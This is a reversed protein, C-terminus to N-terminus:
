ALYPVGPKLKRRVREVDAVRHQSRYLVLAQHWAAVAEADQGLAAHADGVNAHIDAETHVGGIERFGLLASRYYDLADEYRSTHHAIYGLTDLVAAEANRDRLRRALSLARDCTRLARDHEGLRAQYWGVVSLARTVQVQDGLSLQIDLARQSHGLAQQDDGLMEWAASINKHTDAQMRLDGAQEALTLNLRLQDLAEGPLGARSLARGLSVRVLMMTADDGLRKASTLAARWCSLGDDALGRREHFTNTLSALQWVAAHWHEAIALRHAALLCAHETDFWRLAGAMDTIEEPVCPAPPPDLRIPDKTPSLLRAATNATHLYFDVLRRLAVTRAGTTQETAYVRTLDHMRYRGPVHQQLLSAAELRHLVVGAESVPLGTLAAAARVGIDPGQALGILTFATASRRDLARYSWSLVARLNAHLDGADLADLRTAADRLEKALLTLPFTPHQAARAATIGLALPLGACRALLEAVAEPEENLRAAGLRRTLLQRAELDSLVDLDLLRAGHTTALGTLRARSTIVVTCAPSGPLLPVVQDADRANDIVILMRRDAVLSRYLSGLEELGGRPVAPDVGLAELFWRLAVESPMPEGSPDFGRLNVYLQGDPFRDAHEHAWHLALWTKGVGGAGGIATIVLTAGPSATGCLQTLEQHRGTFHSPPGPLQRPTPATDSSPRASLIRDHLRQLEAGPETGLETVLRQRIGQYHGLADAPRGALHCALMLHAAVREDLPHALARAALEPLLDTHRGTRLRLDTHELDAALREQGLTSRVTDLWHSDVGSFPEGQWLALAKAFLAIAARDDVATRAQGCLQRFRHLDVAMPDMTLAYGGARHQIAVGDVGALARRLRALYSYLVNRADGPTRDGWVRDILRDVPVPRCIDVALAVLVCRQRAHGLPISQGDVRVEVEGLVCLELSM